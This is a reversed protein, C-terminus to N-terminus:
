QWELSLDKLIGGLEVSLKRAAGEKFAGVTADWRNSGDWHVEVRVRRRGPKVALVEHLQGEHFKVGLVSRTLGGSLKRELVKEDDVFVLLVGSRLSHKVELFMRAEAISPLGLNPLATGTPSPAVHAPSIPVPLAVAPAPAEARRRILELGVVLALAALGALGRLASRRGTATQDAWFRGTGPAVAPSAADPGPDPLLSVLHRPRRDALLDEIDEALSKADAYRDKRLKALARAVVPDVAAPLGGAVQSPPTPEDHIVHALVERPSAAAFADRGTLLRYGLAGLSFIDTRADVNEGVAQEPSMYLPVGYAEGISRITIRATEVKAVGVDAIKPEGTALLVVNGPRLDRHVVGNAHFHHLTQAIRAVIGLAERWSFPRGSALLSELTQGELYEFVIFLSGSAPDKGVDHVAAAGPHSLRAALVAEEHFRGEFSEREDAPLGGTDVVKLAVTRELVPDNAKYVASTVSRGIEKVLEYRGLRRSATTTV